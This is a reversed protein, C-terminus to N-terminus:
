NKEKKLREQLPVFPKQPPTFREGIIRNPAPSHLAPKERFLEPQEYVRRTLRMHTQKRAQRFLPNEVPAKHINHYSERQASLHDKRERLSDREVESPEEATKRKKEEEVVNRMFWLPPTYLAPKLRRRMYKNM